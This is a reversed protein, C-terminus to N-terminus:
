LCLRSVIPICNVYICNSDRTLMNVMAEEAKSDTWDYTANGEDDVSEVAHTARFVEAM